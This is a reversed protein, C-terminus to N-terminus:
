PVVLDGVADRWDTGDSWAPIPGLSSDTIYIMVGAGAASASPVSGLTFVGPRFGIEAKTVSDLQAAVRADALVGGFPVKLLAFDAGAGGDYVATWTGLQTASVTLGFGQLPGEITNVILPDFTVTEGRDEFDAIQRDTDFGPFNNVVFSGRPYRIQDSGPAFLVATTVTDTQEVSFAMIPRLLSISALDFITSGRKCNGRFGFFPDFVQAPATTKFATQGTEIDFRADSYDNYLFSPSDAHARWQWTVSGNRSDCREFRCREMWTNAAENYQDWNVSGAGNFNEVTVGIWGARIVAGTQIGIAGAAAGSGDITGNSVYGANTITFPLMRKRLCIGAGTYFITAGNLDLNVTPLYIDLAVTGALGGITYSDGELKVTGAGAAHVTALATAIDAGTGSPPILITSYENFFEHLQVHDAIHGTTVNPVITTVLTAGFM